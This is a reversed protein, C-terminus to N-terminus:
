YGGGLDRGMTLPREGEWTGDAHIVTPPPVLSGVHKGHKEIHITEGQRARDVAEGPSNRLGMMDVTEVQGSLDKTLQNLKKM